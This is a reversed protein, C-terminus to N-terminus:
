KKTKTHRKLGRIPLAFHLLQAFCLPIDLLPYQPGRSPTAFFFAILWPCIVVTSRSIMVTRCVALFLQGVSHFSLNSVISTFRTMLWICM